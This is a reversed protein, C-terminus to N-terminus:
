HPSTRNTEHRKLYAIAKYLLDCNDKFYGLGINCRTCLLGRVENTEHCHDVSLKRAQQNEEIGCCACCGEQQNYIIIFEEYSLGFQKIKNKRSTLKRKDPNKTKWDKQYGPNQARWAKPNIENCKLCYKYKTSRQCVHGYKCPKGTYYYELGQERAKALAIIEM